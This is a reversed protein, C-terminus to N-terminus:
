ACAERLSRVLAAVADVGREAADVIASGVVVADAVDHLSRVHEPRSIGFGVAVPVSAYRRVRAVFAGVDAGVSARAGTVGTLSVCYVFGRAAPVLLALRDEPTNPAVLSIQVLHRPALAAELEASEEHPLDPVIVGDAGAAALDRALPALGYRFFPNAYGMLLIPQTGDRRLERALEIVDVVRTGSALAREAARQITAGDALPDSFPVGLEIVDAGAALAARALRLSTDLDPDGAMVYAILALRRERKADAFAGELRLLDVSV